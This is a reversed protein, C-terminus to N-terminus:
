KAAFAASQGVITPNRLLRQLQRKAGAATKQDAYEGTHFEVSQAGLCGAMEVQKADPEIFLSVEAGTKRLTEVCRRIRSTQGRLDLGGETTREQRKEPVLTVQDPRLKLATRVVSPAISMELNLRISINKRVRFLDEDQIHRRDERLHMVVAHAGARQCIRAAEVPDPYVRSDAQRGAPLRAQRLTAVHDINVGLKM